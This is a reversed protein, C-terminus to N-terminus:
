WIHTPLYIVYLRQLVFDQITQGDSVVMAPGASAPAFRPASATLTYWDACLTGSYVGAADATFTLVQTGALAEARVTAGPISGGAFATVAGSLAGPGQEAPHTGAVPYFSVALGDSPVEPDHFSYGIGSRGTSNEVGVSAWHTDRVDLYQLLLANSDLDLIIEFTEPNGSPWHQVQYFEVVFLHNAVLQAYITGQSGSAPNLDDWLAYIANNPVFPSPVTNGGPYASGAGFAVYGNSSVYLGTYAQGFFTFTGGGLSVYQSADNALNLRQGSATIDIWDFAPGCPATNDRVLYTAEPALAFDQVLDGQLAIAKDQSVYGPSSARLTYVGQAVGTTYGGTSPNTATSILTDLVTVIAPLAADSDKDTVHGSLTWVPAPDLALDLVTTTGSLVVTGTVVEPLYGYLTATVDYTAALLTEQYSGGPGTVAQRELGNDAQVIALEAGPLPQDNGRDTVTGSLVGLGSSSVMQMAALADIIGWGWVNNPRGGPLNPPCQQSPKPQASAEVIQFTTDLDGILDPRASWLLAILGAAHPAAMSTGSMSGYRNSPLASRVGQGPAAVDPKIRTKGDVTVPGRSSFGAIQDTSDFAGVTLSEPYQGPNTVTGCSSGSNGASKTLAIGAAHLVKSAERLTDPDCGESAPCYWSNNVIHPALDPRPDTGDQRTPALFWEWCELYKSARWVGGASAVKCAIWQAGPAMGIQNTDGDDGVMTGTTHTGHGNPDTPEAYEHFVDYWNYDHNGVGGRYQDDLAPHTWDVGTDCSGVVINQGTYGLPWVDDANTRSINWEIGDIAAPGAAGPLPDDLGSFAPDAEVRAVEPRAALRRALAEDGTVQVANVIFLPHYSVGWAELDARLRAQSQEAVARLAQYVYQGRAARGTLSAAGALEAEAKLFVLFSTPNPGAQREKLLRPDIQATDAGSAAPVTASLLFAAAALWGIWRLPYRKNTM